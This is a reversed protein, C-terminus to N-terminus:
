HAIGRWFGFIVLLKLSQSM